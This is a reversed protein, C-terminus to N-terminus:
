IQDRLYYKMTIQQVGRQYCRMYEKEHDIEPLTYNFNHESLRKNLDEATLDQMYEHSGGLVIRGPNVVCNILMILDAVASYFEIHDAEKIIEDFTKKGYLPLCGIEGAFNREGVVVEHNIILGAGSYAKDIHIYVLSQEEEGEDSVYGYATANLDNVLYVEAGLEREIVEGIKEISDYTYYIKDKVIGPVGIGIVKVPYSSFITKVKEVIYNQVEKIGELSFHQEKFSEGAINIVQVSFSDREIEIGMMVYRERNLTYAAARRGGTSDARDLTQVLGDSQLESLLTAVTTISLETNEAIDRKTSTVTKQLARIVQAKNYVKIDETGIRKGM